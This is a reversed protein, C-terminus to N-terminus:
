ASQIRHNGAAARTSALGNVSWGAVPPAQQQMMCAVPMAASKPMPYPASQQFAVPAPATPLAQTFYHMM